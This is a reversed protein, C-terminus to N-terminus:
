SDRSFVFVASKSLGNSVTALARSAGPVKRDGGRGTVQLVAEALHTMGHLRGEGLAGGGTDVPLLPRFSYAGALIEVVQEM